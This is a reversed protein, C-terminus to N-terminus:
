QAAGRRNIYITTTITPPTSLPYFVGTGDTIKQNKATSLHTYKARLTKPYLRAVTPILRTSFINGVFRHPLHPFSGVYNQRASRVAKVGDKWLSRM